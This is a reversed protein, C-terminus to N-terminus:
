IGMKSPNTNYNTFGTLYNVSSPCTGYKPCIDHSCASARYDEEILEKASLVAISAYKDKRM